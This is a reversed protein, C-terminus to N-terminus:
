YAQEHRIKYTWALKSGDSSVRPFSYFDRGEAVVKPESAPDTPVAVIANVAEGDGEHSEQVCLIWRGDPTMTPNEADVGDHTVQRAGSGDISAMWIEMNGSRDSSWLVSRGDPTFAPDWDGAPDDTLRSDQGAELDRIWLDVNGSRNSSYMLRTDDPSFVPQRDISSGFSLTEAPGGSKRDLPYM